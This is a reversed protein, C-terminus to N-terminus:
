GPQAARPSRQELGLTALLRDLVAGWDHQVAFERLVEPSPPAAFFADSRARRHFRRHEEALTIPGNLKALEPWYVSVVPLGAAAYEYLKIPNVGRVLDAHNRVDFPVIGVDAHQLYGPLAESWPRAGLVHLNRSSSALTPPRSRARRHPSFSQSPRRERPKQSSITTSGNPWPASMSLARPEPIAPTTNPPSSPPARFSFRPSM